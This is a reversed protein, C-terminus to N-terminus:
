RLKSYADLGGRCSAKTIPRLMFAFSEIHVFFFPIRCSFFGARSGDAPYTIFCHKSRGGFSTPSKFPVWSRVPQFLIWIHSTANILKCVTKVSLHIDAKWVEGAGDPDRLVQPRDRKTVKTWAQISLM